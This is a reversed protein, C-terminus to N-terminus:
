LELLYALWWAVYGGGFIIATGFINEVTKGGGGDYWWRQFQYRRKYSKIKQQAM